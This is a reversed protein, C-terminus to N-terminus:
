TKSFLPATEKNLLVWLGYAGIITGIPFGLLSLASLIIALIRAWEQMQLLGWGAALSPLSMVAIVGFIIAGIGGLIPGAMEVDRDGSAGAIGGIGGLIGWVLLGAIIGLGGLVLYIWAIVKVHTDM